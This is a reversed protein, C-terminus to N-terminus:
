EDDEDDNDYRPTYQVATGDYDVPQMVSDNWRASEFASSRMSVYAPICLIILLMLVSRIFWKVRVRAAM